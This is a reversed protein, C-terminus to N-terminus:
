KEITDLLNKTSIIDSEPTAKDLFDVTSLSEKSMEVNDIKQWYLLVLHKDTKIHDGYEELLM